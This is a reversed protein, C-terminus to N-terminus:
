KYNLSGGQSSVYETWEADTYNYKMLRDGGFGYMIQYESTFYDQQYGLLSCVTSGALPIRYYFSLFQKELASLIDLRTEFPANAFEGDGSLSQTWAQYTKTVDKGNVNITFKETKPDWCLGEHLDTNDPDMYCDLNRFPYFAAGGWAGYGIAYTGRSGVDGYRDNLNGVAVLTVSTFGSGKIAETLFDNLKKVQAQDADELAGKKWALKITIDTGTLKGAASLEEYAKKMLEKAKALNFGTISDYAADLNAFAKGEGYEVGYLDCIAKKAQETKRYQSAPDNYIDYYYLSNMLSYAPKYGETTKVWEARDIALSFAERFNKNSLAISNKNGEKDMAVLKEENTCFFLSMTYTEDVKYLQSSLVYDKVENPTPAYDNLLGREFMLKATSQTLVDITYKTTQYQQQKAGDVEFNTESMYYMKGDVEKNKNWGYWNPNQVFVAQKGEEFSDLMYPGYSWTNDKSNNYSSTKLGNDDTKTNKIYEDTKVLWSSTLSTMFYNWDLATQLVYRIKYDDVKYIGVTEDYSKGYGWNDTYQVLIFYDFYGAAGYVEFLDKASFADSEEAEADTAGPKAYVTEDDIAVYQPCPTNADGFKTYGKAGWFDWVDLYVKNDDVSAELAEEMNKFSKQNYFGEKDGNFFQSGGAAASEGAYYLNARYHKYEPSLLLKASEIYDDAKIATGDQWKANPNLTIEYVFQETPVTEGEYAVHYKEFDSACSATVDEVKTAMEYVWQFTQEKTNLPAMDVFPSSVYGLMGSDANTEWSNPNWNDGLADTWTRYTYDGAVFKHNPVEPRDPNNPQDPNDPNECCGALLFCATLSLFLRKKKM